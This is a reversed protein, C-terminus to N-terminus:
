FSSSPPTAATAKRAGRKNGGEERASELTKKKTFLNYSFSLISSFETMLVYKTILLYTIFIALCRLYNHWALFSCRALRSLGRPLLALLQILTASMCIKELTLDRPSM